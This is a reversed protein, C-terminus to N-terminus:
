GRLVHALEPSIDWKKRVQHQRNKSVGRVIHNEAPPTLVSGFGVCLFFVLFHFINTSKHMSTQQNQKRDEDNVEEDTDGGSNFVNRPKSRRPTMKEEPPVGDDLGLADDIRRRIYNIGEKQPLEIIADIAAGIRIQGLANKGSNQLEGVAKM